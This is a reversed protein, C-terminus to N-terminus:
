RILNRGSVLKVPILQIFRTTDSFFGVTSDNAVYISNFAYGYGWGALIAMAVLSFGTVLAMKRELNLPTKKM